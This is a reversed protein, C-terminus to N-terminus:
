QMGQPQYTIPWVRSNFRMCFSINEERPLLPEFPYCLAAVSGAVVLRHRQKFSLQDSPEDEPGGKGRMLNSLHKLAM